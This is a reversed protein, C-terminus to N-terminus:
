RWIQSNEEGAAPPKRRNRVSQGEELKGSGDMLESHAVRVGSCRRRSKRGRDHETPQSRQEGDCTSTTPTM